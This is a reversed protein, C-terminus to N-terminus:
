YDIRGHETFIEESHMELFNEESIAADYENEFLERATDALGEFADKLTDGNRISRTLAEIFDHDACYGTLPCDGIAGQTNGHPSTYGMFHKGGPLPTAICNARRVRKVFPIWKARLQTLVNNELWAMARPGRLEESPIATEHRWSEDEIDACLYSRDYASISWKRLKVKGNTTKFLAKLSDMIEDTWPIEEINNQHRKLAKAYADPFLQKLEAATYLNKTITKM